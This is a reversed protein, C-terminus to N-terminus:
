GRGGLYTNLDPAPNDASRRVRAPRAPPPAARIELHGIHVDVRREPPPKTVPMPPVAQPMADVVPPPLVGEPLHPADPVTPVPAPAPRADPTDGVPRAVADPVDPALDPADQLIEERRLTHLERTIHRFETTREHAIERHDHRVELPVRTEPATRETEPDPLPAPSRASPEPAIQEPAPARLPAPPTDAAKEASPASPPTRAQVEEVFGEDSRGQPEFLGPLQPTLLRATGLQRAALRTFMDTM